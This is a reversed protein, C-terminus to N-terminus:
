RYIDKDITLVNLAKGQGILNFVDIKNKILELVLLYECHNIWISDEIIRKMQSEYNLTYYKESIEDIPVFTEGNVNIEQDLCSLPFLLPKIDEFSNWSESNDDYAVGDQYFTTAKFLKCDDNTQFILGYPLYPNIEELKLM